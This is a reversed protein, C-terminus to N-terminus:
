LRRLCAGPELMASLSVSAINPREVDADGVGVAAACAGRKKGRGLHRAPKPLQLHSYVPQIDRLCHLLSARVPAAAVTTIARWSPALAKGEGRTVRSPPLQPLQAQRRVLLPGLGPALLHVVESTAAGAWRSGGASGAADLVHESGWGGLPGAPESGRTRM